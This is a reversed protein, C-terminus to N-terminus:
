PLRVHASHNALHWGVTMGDLRTLGRHVTKPGAPKYGKSTYGSWGGLRSVTWAFWALTDAPHPNKLQETRGEVSANIARLAPIDAPDVADALRQATVGDRALVIQMIRVAAILAAVALKVFARVGIMQSEEIRAGATKLTRFVQEITWRSRYWGVLARAQALDDVVHTSLLCWHVMAEAAPPDIEVVDVVRLTVTAALSKAATAPRRLVVEGFRVAVTAARGARPGRPPVAIRDCARVDWSLVEDFLRVGSELTRDQAARTLLHVNDPRRAFQDYIDSERDGVVTIMAADALVAGATEAGALWRRSEKQDAVRGKRDAVPADTRNLVQAGVLGIVGGHAADVALLPHLFLGLDRGNGATGFGRKSATHAAFNIETTDQIALVHRGAVRGGSLQGARTLMEEASVADNDLFRGFQVTQNRDKALAHLCMTPNQQMAALLAAGVKELRADGFRGLDDHALRIAIGRVGFAADIRM